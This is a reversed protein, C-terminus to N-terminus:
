ENRDNIKRHWLYQLKGEVLGRLGVLYELTLSHSLYSSILSFRFSFLLSFSFATSIYKKFTTNILQVLVVKRFKQFFLKEQNWKATHTKGETRGWIGYAEREEGEIKAFLRLHWGSEDCHLWVRHLEGRCSSCLSISGSVCFLFLYVLKPNHLENFFFLRHLFYSNLECNTAFGPFIIYKSFTVEGLFSRFTRKQLSRAIKKWLLDLNWSVKTM